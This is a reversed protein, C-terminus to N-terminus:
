AAPVCVHLSGGGVVDLNRVADPAAGTCELGPDMCDGDSTCYRRCQFMSDGDAGAYVCGLGRECFDFDPELTGCRDGQGGTGGNGRCEFFTAYDPAAGPELETSVECRNTELCGQQRVPDCGIICVTTHDPLAPDDVEACLMTAAIDTCAADSACTRYCAAASGAHRACVEGTSCPHTADCAVHVGYAGGQSDPNACIGQRCLSDAACDAGTTCANWCTYSRCVISEHFCTRGAGCPSTTTDLPVDILCRGIQDVMACHAGRICDRQSVCEIACRGDRCVLPDVCDSNLECPPGMMAGQECAAVLLVALLFPSRGGLALPRM